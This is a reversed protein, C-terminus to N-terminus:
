INNGRFKAGKKRDLRLVDIGAVMLNGETPTELYGIRNLLTTKGSERPASL